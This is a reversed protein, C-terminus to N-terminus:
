ALQGEPLQFLLAMPRLEPNEGGDCFIAESPFQIPLANRLAQVVSLGELEFEESRSFLSKYLLKLGGM